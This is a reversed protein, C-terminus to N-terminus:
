KISRLLYDYLITREKPNTTRRDSSDLVKEPATRSKIRESALKIKTIQDVSIGKPKISETISSTIGYHLEYLIAFFVYVLTKKHFVFDTTSSFHKEMSDMIYRFRLEVEERNPYSEDLNKYLKELQPASKGSLKRNIILSVCETTFEVEVMRAIDDSSFTRRQKWRNIQETALEYVSTKFEGYWKANRLEQRTLTYNTSNMRRFIQIVLRDDM